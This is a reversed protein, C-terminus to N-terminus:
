VGREKEGEPAARRARAWYAAARDAEGARESLLALQLLATPRQPELYVAQEFLRKAGPSDNVSMRIMGQLELAAASPGRKAVFGRIMAEAESTRGADALARAGEISAEMSAEPLARAAPATLGPDARRVPESWAAARGPAPRHETKRASGGTAGIKPEGARELAFAHPVSVHRLPTDGRLVQEAHGVFLMGGPALEACIADLLRGRSSANLYILLNRCFVVDQPGDGRLAGPETIDARRFRVVARAAADISIADGQRSLYRMAWPPMETRVSSAGYAGVEALRLFERNRDLGTVSVREAPWGAQLATMAMCYAEQGTACGVSLMRVTSAGAALRGELFELLLEFSRPYRFLWTEPVAIGAILRDVEDPSRELEAIYAAESGGLATLRETVIADVGGGELLSPEIPSHEELWRRILPHMM